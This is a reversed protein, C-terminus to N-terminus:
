SSEVKQRKAKFNRWFIHVKVLIKTIIYSILIVFLVSILIVSITTAVDTTIEYGLWDIIVTGNNESLWVMPTAIIATLITLWIIKLM